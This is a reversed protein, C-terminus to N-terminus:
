SRKGMEYYKKSKEMDCTKRYYEELFICIRRVEEDMEVSCVYKEYYEASECYMRMTKYTEALCLYGINHKLKVSRMYCKIGNEYEKLQSYGNGLSIWILPDDKKYEISKKFYFLATEFMNLIEYLKGLSYFGKYYYNDVKLAKKYSNISESFNKIQLYEHGLLIYFLTNSPNLKTCQDYYIIAKDNLNKFSYVNAICCLTEPKYKNINLCYKPLYFIEDDKNHYLVNSYLDIYDICATNSKILNSYINILDKYKRKYYLVACDLQLYINSLNIKKIQIQKKVFLVQYFYLSLQSNNLFSFDITDLNDPNILDIIALYAEWFLPNLEVCKILINIDKNVLGILYLNYSDLNDILQIKKINKGRLFLFLSYNRMFIKTKTCCSCFVMEDINEKSNSCLLSYYSMKYEKLNLYTLYLMENQDLTFSSPKFPMRIKNLFDVTKFLGRKLFDHM